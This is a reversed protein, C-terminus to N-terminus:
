DILMSPQYSKNGGWDFDFEYTLSVCAQLAGAGFAASAVHLSRRQNGARGM